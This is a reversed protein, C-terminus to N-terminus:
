SEVKVPEKLNLGKEVLSSNGDTNEGGAVVGEVVETDGQIVCAIVTRKEPFVV